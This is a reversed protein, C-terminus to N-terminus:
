PLRAQGFKFSERLGALRRRVWKVVHLTNYEPITIVHLTNYMMFRNGPCHFVASHQLINDGICTAIWTPPLSVTDKCSLTLTDGLSVPLTTTTELSSDAIERCSVAVCYYQYCITYHVM